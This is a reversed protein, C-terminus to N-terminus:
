IYRVPHGISNSGHPSVGHQRTHKEREGNQNISTKLFTVWQKDKEVYGKQRGLLGYHDPEV